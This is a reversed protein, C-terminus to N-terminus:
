DHKASRAQKINMIHREVEGFDRHHVICHMDQGAKYGMSAHWADRPALTRFSEWVCGRYEHKNTRHIHGTYWYRFETSGWMAPEDDAMIAPLADPKVKDGHLAGIMVKGHQYYWARAPSIDVTVRKQNKYYMHLVHALATATHDDHNGVLVKVIVREHKAAAATIIDVMVEVGIQFVRAWRTDTDLINGSRSTMGSSNDAHFMDGLPLVLAASSAPARAILASAAARLDREAIDIDFDQGAEESWAYMGLHPDGIPYVALLDSDRHAQYDFPLEPAKGEYGEMAALLAKIMLDARAQMDTATKVYQTIINGDPGYQTTLGKVFQGVPAPHTADVEYSYGMSNAIQSLRFHANSAKKPKLGFQRSIRAVDGFRTVGGFDIAAQCYEATEQDYRIHGEGWRRQIEELIKTDLYRMPIRKAM